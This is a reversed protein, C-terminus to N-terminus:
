AIVGSAGAFAGEGLDNGPTSGASGTDGSESELDTSELVPSNVRIKMLSGFSGSASGVEAIGIPASIEDPVPPELSDSVPSNVRSM